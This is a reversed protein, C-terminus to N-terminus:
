FEDFFGRRNLIQTLPDHHAMNRFKLTAEELLTRTTELEIERLRPETRDRMILSYGRLERLNSEAPGDGPQGDYIATLVASAWFPSGEKPFRWGEAAPRGTGRASALAPRLESEAQEGGGYFCAASREVIESEAWGTIRAAGCNWTTVRGAADLMCI